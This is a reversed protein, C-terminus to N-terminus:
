KNNSQHLDRHLIWIDGQSHSRENMSNRNYNNNSSSNNPPAQKTRSSSNAPTRRLSPPTQTLHNNNSSSNATTSARTQQGRSSPVPLQSKVRPAPRRGTCQSAPQSPSPVVESPQQVVAEQNSANTFQEKSPTSPFPMLSDKVQSIQSIDPESRSSCMTQLERILDTEDDFFVPLGTQQRHGNSM